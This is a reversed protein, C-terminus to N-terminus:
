SPGIIQSQQVKLTTVENRLAQMLLSQQRINQKISQMELVQDQFRSDLNSNQDQLKKDLKSSHDHIKKDINQLL